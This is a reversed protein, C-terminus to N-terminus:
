VLLRTACWSSRHNYLLPKTLRLTRADIVEQVVIEETETFAGMESATIILVDGVGFDVDESLRVTDSGAM